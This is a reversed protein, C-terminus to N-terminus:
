AASVAARRKRMRSFGLGGALASGFLVLAGPLPVSSATPTANIVGTNGTGTGTCNNTGTLCSVVDAAFWSGGTGATLDALLQAGTLGTSTIGFSLAQGDPASPSCSSCMVGFNFFGAGDMHLSAATTNFAQFGSSFTPFAITTVGSLNFAFSTAIGSGNGSLFHISDLLNISFDLQNTNAGDISVHVTGFNNNNTGAGNGGLGNSSDDSTFVFNTPTAPSASSGVVGLGLMSCAAVTMVFFRKTATM